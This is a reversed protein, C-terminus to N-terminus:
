CQEGVRQEGVHEGLLRVQLGTLRMQGAPVTVDIVVVDLLNAGLRRGPASRM